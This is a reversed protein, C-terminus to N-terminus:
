DRATKHVTIGLGSRVWQAHAAQLNSCGELVGEDEVWFADTATLMYVLLCGLSWMDQAQTIKQTSDFSQEGSVVAVLEPAVIPLTHTFRAGNQTWQGGLLSSLITPHLVCYLQRFLATQQLALLSECEACVLTSSLM